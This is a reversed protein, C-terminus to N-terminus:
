IGMFVLSQDSHICWRFTCWQHMVPRDASYLLVKIRCRNNKLKILIHLQYKCVNKTITSFTIQVWCACNTSICDVDNIYRPFTVVTENLFDDGRGFGISRVLPTIRFGFVSSRCTVFNKM